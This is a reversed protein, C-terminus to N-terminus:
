HQKLMEANNVNQVRLAPRGRTSVSPEALKVLVVDWQVVSLFFRHPNDM